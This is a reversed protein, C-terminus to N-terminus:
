LTVHQSCTIDLLLFSYFISMFNSKGVKFSKTGLDLRDSYLRKEYWKRKEISEKLFENIIVQARYTAPIPPEIMNKIFFSRDVQYLAKSVKLIL